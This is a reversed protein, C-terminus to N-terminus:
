LHHVEPVAQAEGQQQVLLQEVPPQGGEESGVEADDLDVHVVDLLHPALKSILCYHVSLVYLMWYDITELPCLVVKVTWLVM